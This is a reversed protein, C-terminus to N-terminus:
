LDTTHRIAKTKFLRRRHIAKGRREFLHVILTM